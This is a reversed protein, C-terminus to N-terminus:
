YFQQNKSSSDNDGDDDDSSNQSPVNKRLNKLFALTKDDMVRNAPDRLGTMFQARAKEERAKLLSRTKEAGIMSYIQERLKTNETKLDDVSQQLTSTLSKKRQRSRKAHERNRQRREELEEETLGEDKNKAASLPASLTTSASKDSLKRKRTKTAAKTPKKAKSPKKTSESITPLPSPVPSPPSSVIQELTAMPNPVSFAQIDQVSSSPTITTNSFFQDPSQHDPSIPACSSAPFFGSMPLGPEPNGGMLPDDNAFFGIDNLIEEVEFDNQDMAMNENSFDALQQSLNNAVVSMMTEATLNHSRRFELSHPKHSKFAKSREIRPFSSLYWPRLKKHCLYPSEEVVIVTAKSAQIVVLLGSSHSALSTYM